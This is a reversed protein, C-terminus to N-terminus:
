GGWRGPNSRSDQMDGAKAMGGFPGYFGKFFHGRQDKHIGAGPYAEKGSPSVRLNFLDEGDKQFFIPGGNGPWDHDLHDM